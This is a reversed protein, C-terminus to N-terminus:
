IEVILEYKWKILYEYYELIINLVSANTAFQTM